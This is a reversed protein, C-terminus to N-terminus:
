DKPGNAEVRSWVSRAAPGPGILSKLILQYLMYTDHVVGFEYIVIRCFIITDGLLMITLYNLIM